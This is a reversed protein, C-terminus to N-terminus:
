NKIPLLCKLVPDSDFYFTEAWSSILANHRYLNEQYWLLAM